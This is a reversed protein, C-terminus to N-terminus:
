VALAFGHSAIEREGFEDDGRFLGEITEAQGLGDVPHAVCPSAM